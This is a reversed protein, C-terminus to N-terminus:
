KFVSISEAITLILDYYFTLKVNKSSSVPTVLSYVNRAPYKEMSPKREDFSLSFHYTVTIKAITNIRDYNFALLIKILCDPSNYIHM